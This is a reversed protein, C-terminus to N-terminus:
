ADEEPTTDETDGNDTDDEVTYETLAEHEVPVEGTIQKLIHPSLPIHVQGTIRTKQDIEQIELLKKIAQMANPSGTAAEEVLRQLTWRKDVGLDALIKQVEQDVYEKVKKISLLRSAKKQASLRDPAGYVKMVAEVRDGTIALIKAFRKQRETLWPKRGGGTNFGDQIEETHLRGGPYKCRGFPTRIVYQDKTGSLKAWTLVPVIYGDESLVFKDESTVEGLTPPLKELKLESKHYIEYKNNRTTITKM